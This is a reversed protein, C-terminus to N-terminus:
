FNKGLKTSNFADSNEGFFALGHISKNAKCAWLCSGHSLRLEMQSIEKAFLHVYIMIFDFFDSFLLKFLLM